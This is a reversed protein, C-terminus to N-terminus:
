LSGTIEKIYNKPTKGTYKKFKMIFYDIDKYGVREAVEGVKGGSILLEKAKNVRVKDLYTNFNEGMYKRFIKGLYCPNYGFEKAIERLRLDKYYNAEIYEAIKGLPSTGLIDFLDKSLELLLDKVYNHLDLLTRKSYFGEFLRKKLYKSSYEKFKPYKKLFATIVNIYLEFYSLKIEQEQEERMMHYRMKKELLTELKIFDCSELACIVEDTIDVHTFNNVNVKKCPYLLFGKNEWLFRKRLLSLATEYSYNIQSISLVKDGVSFIFYEKFKNKLHNRLSTIKRNDKKFDEIVFGLTGDIMFSIPFFKKLEQSIEYKDVNENDSSMLVVQYSDWSLDFNLLKSVDKETLSIQGKLLKELIKEKSGEFLFKKRELDEYIKTLEDKLIQPDVPKLMYSQVGLSIAKQAYEFEPYGTLIIIKIESKSKRIESILELGDMGPMRIDIVCLDPDLKRVKDLAEVGDEAEGVIKFGLANWNVIKKLGQRIVPEDDAILVKYYM